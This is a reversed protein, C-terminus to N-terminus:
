RCLINDESLSRLLLSAPRRTVKWHHMTYARVIGAADSPVEEQQVDEETSVLSSMSTYSSSNSMTQNDDESSEKMCLKETEMTEM